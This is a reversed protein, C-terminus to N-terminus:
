LLPPLAHCFFPGPREVSEDRLLLQRGFLLFEQAPAQFGAGDAGKKVGICVLGTVRTRRARRARGTLGQFVAGALRSQDFLGALVLGAELAERKKLGRFVTSLDEAPNLVAAKVVRGAILSLSRVKISGLSPKVSAPQSETRNAPAGCDGCFTADSNLTNGCQQCTM